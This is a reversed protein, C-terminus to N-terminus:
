STWFIALMPASNCEYFLMSNLTLIGIFLTNTRRLLLNAKIKHDKFLLKFFVESSVAVPSQALNKAISPLTWPKMSLETQASRM